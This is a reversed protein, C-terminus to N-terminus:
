RKRAVWGPRRTGRYVMEARDAAEKSALGRVYFQTWIRGAIATADIDHRKKLEDEAAAKWAQYKQQGEPAKRLLPKSRV